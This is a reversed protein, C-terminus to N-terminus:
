GARHDAAVEEIHPSHDAQTRSLSLRGHSRQDSRVFFEAHRAVRAVFGMISEGPIAKCHSRAPDVTEFRSSAFTVEVGGLADVASLRVM